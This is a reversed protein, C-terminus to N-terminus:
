EGPVARVPRGYEDMGIGPGFVDPKVNGFPVRQGGQTRWHFPRGTSDSWTGPGYSNQHAPGLLGSPTPAMPVARQRNRPSPTSGYIGVENNKPCTYGPMTKTYPHYYKHNGVHVSGMRSGISLAMGLCIGWICLRKMGM